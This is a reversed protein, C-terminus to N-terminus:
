IKEDSKPPFVVSAVVGLTLTGIVIMLSTSPEIKWDEQLHFMHISASLALKFAIFFLLAIIAKALHVLYKQMAALVFYLQRLGLIAFIMATYVLLPEKTVAIVAPVSDFAFVIDAVEITVLCLLLPTAYFAKGRPVDLAANESDAMLNDVQKHSVFFDHGHLKPWIPFLRKTFQVSWHESYDAIGKDDDSSKLMQVATWVIIAAFVMEVWPGLSYLWTGASVFVLRFLIAGIVGYFLVRHRYGEPVGFASFIAVFVMLNDVSLVKELAYGTLFLAAFESGYNMYIYGAFLLSMVVWVISWGIANALTVQKDSRHSFLDLALMAIVGVVFLAIVAPPYGIHAGEEFM